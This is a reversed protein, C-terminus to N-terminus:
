GGRPGASAAGYHILDILNPVAVVPDGARCCRDRYGTASVIGYRRGPRARRSNIGRQNAPIHGKGPEETVRRNMGRWLCTTM